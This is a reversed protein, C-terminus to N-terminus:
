GEIIPNCPSLLIDKETTIEGRAMKYVVFENTKGERDEDDRFFLTGYSGKANDSIIKMLDFVEDVDQGKHNTFGAIHLFYQGNIPELVLIRNRSVMNDISSRISSIINSINSEQEGTASENISFWGHYEVM